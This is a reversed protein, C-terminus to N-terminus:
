VWEKTARNWIYAFIDDPYPATDTPKVGVLDGCGELHFHAMPDLHGVGTFKAEAPLKLGTGTSILCRGLAVGLLAGAYNDLPFHLGAITRNNTIREALQFRLNGANIGTWPDGGSFHALLTAILFSETAHGSPYSYHPPTQIIPQVKQSYAIPRQAAFGHKLPLEVAIALRVAAELVEMTWRRGTHDLNVIAGYFSMMDHIQQFIEPLRDARLDAYVRLLPMQAAFIGNAPRTLTVLTDTGVKVTGTTPGAQVSVAGILAQDLMRGRLAPTLYDYQEIAPLLPDTIAANGDWAGILGDRSVALAVSLATSKM